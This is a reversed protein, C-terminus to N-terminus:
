ITGSVNLGVPLQQYILIIMVTTSILQKWQIEVELSRFTIIVFSFAPSISLWILLTCTLSHVHLWNLWTLFKCPILLNMIIMFWEFVHSIKKFLSCTKISLVCSPKCGLQLHWKQIKVENSWHSWKGLRTEIWKVTLPSCGVCGRCVNRHRILVKQGESLRLSESYDKGQSWALKLNGRLTQM